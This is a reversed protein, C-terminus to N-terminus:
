TPALRAIACFRRAFPSTSPNKRAALKTSSASSVFRLAIESIEPLDFIQNRPYLLTQGVIRRGRGGTGHMKQIERGEGSQRLGDAAAQRGEDFAVERERLGSLNAGPAPREPDTVNRTVEAVVRDTM